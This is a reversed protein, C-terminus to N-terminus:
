GSKSRAPKVFKSGKQSEGTFRGSQVKLSERLVEELASFNSKGEIYRRLNRFSNKKEGTM